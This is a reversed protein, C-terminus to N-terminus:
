VTGNEVQTAMWSAAGLTVSDDGLEAPKIEFQDRYPPAVHKLTSARVQDVYTDQMADVLGGGLVVVDPLLLNIATAIGQGLWTAAREVIQAVVTDGNEIARAIAASRINTLDTGADELIFPAEGRYAAVAIESAISLRSAVTELCGYNGCGCLRGNAVIPIHGIEMCSRRSGILPKGEYVCAGGIGTGPFIGLACRAGKAAGSVYEGYTGADVDNSLTVPCSFQKKLFETIKVNKWGLNPLDHIVGKRPDLPGPAGVSIGNLQSSEIGSDALCDEITQVIRALGADLGEFARTKRKRRGIPELSANYLVALMKTGGLDFGIWYKSKPTDSKGM